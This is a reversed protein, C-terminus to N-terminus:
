LGLVQKMASLKPLYIKVGAELDDIKKNVDKIQETM